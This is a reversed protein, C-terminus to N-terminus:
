AADGGHLEEGIINPTLTFPTSWAAPEATLSVPGDVARMQISASRIRGTTDTIVTVKMQLGDPTAGLLRQYRFLEADGNGTRTNM